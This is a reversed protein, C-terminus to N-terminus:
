VSSGFPSYENKGLSEDSLHLFKSIYGLYRKAEQGIGGITFLRALARAFRELRSVMEVAIEQHIKDSAPFREIEKILDPRKIIIATEISEWERDPADTKPQRGLVVDFHYYRAAQGFNSLVSLFSLLEESELYALDEKAVPIHDVYTALFCEERIRKLLLELNHGERNSPIDKTSPFEGTKELIRFCLMVKMLREFGSSLTLLPLHYFDNAGDLKQLQGLGAQILRVANLLEQDIALKQYISPSMIRRQTVSHAM